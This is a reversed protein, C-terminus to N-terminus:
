LKMVILLNSYFKANIQYNFNTRTLTFFYKSAFDQSSRGYYPLSIDYIVAVLYALQDGILTLDVPHFSIVNKSELIENVLNHLTNGRLILICANTPQNSKISLNQFAKSLSCLKNFYFSIQFREIPLWYRYEHLSNVYITYRYLILEVESIYSYMAYWLCCLRPKFVSVLYCFCSILLFLESISLFLSSISVNLCFDIYDICKSLLILNM